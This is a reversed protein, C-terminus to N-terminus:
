RRATTPQTEMPSATSSFCIYFVMEIILNRRKLGFLLDVPEADRGADDRARISIRHKGFELDQGSLQYTGNEDPGNAMIPRGDLSVDVANIAAYDTKVSFTPNFNTEGAAHEMADVTIEPGSACAPMVLASNLCDTGYKHHTAEPDMIWRGGANPNGIVIKYAYMSGSVLYPGPNLSLEFLCPGGSACDQGSPHIAAPNKVM